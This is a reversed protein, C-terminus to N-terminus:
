LAGLSARTELKGTKSDIKTIQFRPWILRSIRITLATPLLSINKNM